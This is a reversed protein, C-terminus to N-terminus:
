AILHKRHLLSAVLYLGLVPLTASAQLFAVLLVASVLFLTPMRKDSQLGLQVRKFALLPLQSVMLLTLGVVFAIFFPPQFLMMQVMGDPEAQTCELTVGAVTLGMAPTPLGRFYSQRAPEINFRALRWAAGLPLLLALYHVYQEMPLHVMHYDYWESLSMLLFAPSVGFSVVDALSDLQKGMESNAGLLRAVMGDLLDFIAAAFLLLAGTRADDHLTHHIALCGCLLNGLTLYNALNRKFM